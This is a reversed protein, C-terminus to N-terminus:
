SCLVRACLQVANGDRAAKALETELSAAKKKRHDTCKICCSAGCCAYCPTININGSQPNIMEELCLLCEGENVMRVIPTEVLGSEVAQRQVEAIRIRETV